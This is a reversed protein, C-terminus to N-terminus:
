EGGGFITKMDEFVIRQENVASHLTGDIVYTFSIINIVFDLDFRLAKDKLRKWAKLKEAAKMVEEPTKFYNGLIKCAEIEEKVLGDSEIVRGMHDLYYFRNTIEETKKM